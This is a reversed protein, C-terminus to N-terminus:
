NLLIQGLLGFTFTDRPSHLIIFKFFKEILVFLKNMFRSFFNNYITSIGKDANNSTKILNAQSDNLIKSNMDQKLLAQHLVEAGKFSGNQQSGGVIHLVKIKM